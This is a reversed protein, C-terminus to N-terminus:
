VPFKQRQKDVSHVVECLLKDFVDVQCSLWTNQIMIHGYKLLTQFKYEFYLRFLKNQQDWYLEHRLGM